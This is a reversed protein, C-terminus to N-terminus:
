ATVTAGGQGTRARCELIFEVSEQMQSPRLALMRAALRRREEEDAGDVRLRELADKGAHRVLEAVADPGLAALREQETQGTRRAQDYVEAVDLGVTGRLVARDLAPLPGEGLGLLAEVFEESSILRQEYRDVLEAGARDRAETATPKQRPLQRSVTAQSVELVRALEVQTVGADRAQVLLDGRRRELERRQAEIVVLEALVENRELPGM